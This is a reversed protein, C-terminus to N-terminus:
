TRGTLLMLIRTMLSMRATLGGGGAEDDMPEECDFEELDGVPENESDWDM